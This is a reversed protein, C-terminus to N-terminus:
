TYILSPKPEMIHLCSRCVLLLVLPEVPFCPPNGTPLEYVLFRGHCWVVFSLFHLDPDPLGNFRRVRCSRVVQFSQGHSPLQCPWNPFYDPMIPLTRAVGSGWLRSDCELFERACAESHPLFCWVVVSHSVLYRDVSPGPGMRLWRCCPPGGLWHMM